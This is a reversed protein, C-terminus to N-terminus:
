CKESSETLGQLEQHSIKIQSIYIFEIKLKKEFKWFLKPRHNAILEPLRDGMLVRHCNAFVKHFDRCAQASQLGFGLSCADLFM